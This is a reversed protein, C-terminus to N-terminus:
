TIQTVNGELFAWLGQFLQDQSTYITKCYRGHAAVQFVLLFPDLDTQAMYNLGEAYYVISGIHELLASALWGCICPPSRWLAGVLLVLNAVSRCHTM